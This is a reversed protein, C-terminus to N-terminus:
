TLTVDHPLIGTVGFRKAPHHNAHNLALVNMKIAKAHVDDTTSLKGLRMLSAKSPPQRISFDIDNASMM